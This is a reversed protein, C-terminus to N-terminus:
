YRTFLILSIDIVPHDNSLTQWDIIRIESKEYNIMINNMWLDGHSIFQCDKGTVKTQYVTIWNNKLIAVKKAMLDEKESELDTILNAFRTEMVELFLPQQFFKEGFTAQWKM